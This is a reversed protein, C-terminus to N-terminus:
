AGEDDLLGVVVQKKFSGALVGLLGDPGKELFELALIVHFDGSAKVDISVQSSRTIASNMMFHSFFAGNWEIGNLGKALLRKENGEDCDFGHQISDSCAVSM